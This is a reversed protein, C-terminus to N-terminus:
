LILCSTKPLDEDKWFVGKRKNELTNKLTWCFLSNWLKTRHLLSNVKGLSLDPRQGQSRPTIELGKPCGAQYTQRSVQPRPSLRRHYIWPWGCPYDWEIHGLGLLNQVDPSPFAQKAPLLKYLSKVPFPCSPVNHKLSEPSGRADRGKAIKIQIRRNYYVTLQSYM